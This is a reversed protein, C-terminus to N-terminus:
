SGSLSAIQNVLNALEAQRRTGTKEFIRHLHTRATSPAIGLARAASKVGNGKSIIGAVVAEAPTMGYLGRLRSVSPEADREPDAIFVIAIPHTVSSWARERRMPAVTVSLPRRGSARELLLSGGASAIDERRASLAIFRRLATTQVSKTACLGSADVGIGDATALMGEAARNAFVVRANIDALIIGESLCDLVELGASRLADLEAIKLTIQAARALHPMLQRLLESSRTAFGDVREPAALCIVGAGTSDRFLTLMTCDYFDQPRVWDNYFETRTLWAKSVIDRDTAITGAPKREIARRIPDLRNYYKQYAEIAAPDMGTSFMAAAGRSTEVMVLDAVNAGAAAALQPLTDSWRQADLGAEYIADILSALAENSIV